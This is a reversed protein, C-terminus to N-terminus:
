ENMKETRKAHKIAQGDTRRNTREATREKMLQSM